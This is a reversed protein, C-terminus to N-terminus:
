QYEHQLKDVVIRDIPLRIDQDSLRSVPCWYLIQDQDDRLTDTNEPDGTSIRDTEASRVKYYISIVQTPERHFASPIYDETTYFHEIETLIIAVEEMFERKLCDIIGEGFELGGGPFKTFNKGHINERSLLVEKNRLLLGYVRITFSTPKM